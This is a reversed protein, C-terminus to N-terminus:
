LVKRLSFATVRMAGLNTNNQIRFGPTAGAAVVIGTTQGVATALNVVAGGFVMALQEANPNATMDVTYRYQEGAVTTPAVDATCRASSGGANAVWEGGTISSQTNTVGTSADFAPQPWLEPGLQEIPGGFVPPLRLRARPRRSLPRNIVAM